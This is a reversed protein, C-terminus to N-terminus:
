GGCRMVGESRLAIANKFNEGDGGDPILNLLGALPTIYSFSYTATVTTPKGYDCATTTVGVPDLGVAAEKTRETTATADKTLAWTRVGERAAHTLTVKANYARGFDITGCILLLLFPLILALEVAAAGRENREIRM